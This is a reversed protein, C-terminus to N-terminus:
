LILVCRGLNPVGSIEIEVDGDIGYKSLPTLTNHISSAHNGHAGENILPLFVFFFINGPTGNTGPTGHSGHGGWEGPSYGRSGDQGNIGDYGAFGHAGDAGSLDSRAM